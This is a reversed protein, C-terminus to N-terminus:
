DWIYELYSLDVTDTNTAIEAGQYKVCDDRAPETTAIM